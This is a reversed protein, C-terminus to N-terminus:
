EYFREAQQPSAVASGHQGTMDFLKSTAESREPQIIVDRLLAQGQSIPYAV